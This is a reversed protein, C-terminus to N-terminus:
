PFVTSLWDLPEVQVGGVWVEFHLHPGSSRGTSGVLGILQGADVHDGVKVFSQSQHWYGTFVGWGHDIIVANGRVNLLDALVVTGPAAAYINLNNACVVFDTGTHTYILESDNYSRISGFLASICDTRDLPKQFFGDWQRAPSALTTLSLIRQDEPETITPDMLSPDVYLKNDTVFFDAILLINQDLSFVEEDEADNARILFDTIGVQAKRHIGQLAVYENDGNSFFNLAHGNLSGSLSLPLSTKVKIVITKGQMIPLRSLSIEQVFQNSTFKSDSNLNQLAYLVQSNLYDWSGKLKNQNVLNVPALNGLAALELMTKGTQASIFPILAKEESSETMVLTAGAFVQNPSTIRNIRVFDKVSMQNTKGLSFFTEGLPVTSKVLQGSIGELGPILLQTGESIFNPDSINNLTIIEDTTTGFLVAVANLTDGSQIIYVPYDPSQAKVPMTMSFTLLFLILLRKIWM